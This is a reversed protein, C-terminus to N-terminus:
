LCSPCDCELRCVGCCLHKPYLPKIYKKDTDLSTLLISRLCKCKSQCFTRVAEQMGPKNEAIDRNNYYLVATAPQGDRGARGTEQFYGQITYPPTIHVVSRIGKIDVGMGLAVTAFVVRITSESSCLQKLVEDKMQQTQPSHFQAFLRNEPIPMAGTPFYQNSGLISEFIKYAFGCWKLPIYIVTLPYNTQERLLDKAVPTLIRVLSDIDPDGRFHKEYMINTRDPNGVVEACTKLGLSKKILERDNKNATATMAVVPANSFTACLVALNGYDM